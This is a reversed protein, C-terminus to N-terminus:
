AVLQRHRIALYKDECESSCFCAAQPNQAKADDWQDVIFITNRIETGPKDLEIVLRWGQPEGERKGCIRCLFDMVPAEKRLIGFSADM